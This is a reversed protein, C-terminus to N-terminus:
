SGLTYVMNPPICWQRFAIVGWEIRQNFKPADLSTDTSIESPPVFIGENWNSVGSKNCLQGHDGGGCGGVLRRTSHKMEPLYDLPSWFLCKELAGKELCWTSRIMFCKGGAKGKVSIQWWLAASLKMSGDGLGDCDYDFFQSHCSNNGKVQVKQWCMNVSKIFICQLKNCQISCVTLKEFVLM